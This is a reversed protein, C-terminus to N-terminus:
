NKKQTCSGLLSKSVFLFLSFCVHVYSFKGEEVSVEFNELTSGATRVDLIKHDFLSMSRAWSGKTVKEWQGHPCMGAVLSM